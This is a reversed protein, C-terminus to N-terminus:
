APGIIKAAGYEAIMYTPAMTNGSTLAPMVSADVVRLNEVGRVRLDPDVVADDDEGMRCTGVCHFVTGGFQRAFQLFAARDVAAKGPAIEADVIKSFGPQSHIERIVEIGAATLKRDAEEALYNPRIEPDSFPDASRIKLTGRSAPRCPWAVVTFGSFKHLPKGSGDVSLPLAVLQIDPRCGTSFESCIAGGVQGAGVTLPGSGSFLWRVGMGILDIPNRVQSNLSIPERLRVVVRVQFHDQLNRGVGPADQVVSIGLSRLLDAPGIGSLQLIQPSQIAGASLIVEKRARLSLRRGREIYEVGVARNNEFLVRTVHASPIIHLNVRNRVPRLFARAASCRWRSGISLQYSGCGFTTEANFDPNQPLGFQRAADLWALCASNRERLDSVALEGNAGRYQSSPSDYAEFRKFFPLVTKYGWGTAGLGEWDEFDEAQGRVFMLGNISSSGGIVRGRPWVIRRGDIGPGGETPFNRTFRPNTMTRYYGVPLKLWFGRDWGGAELLAVRVQPDASLRNGLLCGASGAGVIVYDYSSM